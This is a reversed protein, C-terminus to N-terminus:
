EVTPLQRSLSVIQSLPEETISQRREKFAELASIRKELPPMAESFSASFASYMAEGVALKVASGNTKLGNM